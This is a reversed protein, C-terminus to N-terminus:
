NKEKEVLKTRCVWDTLGVASTTTIEKMKNTICEKFETLINTGTTWVEPAGNKFKACSM